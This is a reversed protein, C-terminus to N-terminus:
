LFAQRVRRSHCRHSLDTQLRYLVTLQGNFFLLQGQGGSGIGSFIVTCRQCIRTHADRAATKCLALAGLVVHGAALCQDARRLVGKSVAQPFSRLFFVVRDCDQRARQRDPRALAPVGDRDACLTRFLGIVALRESRFAQNRVLHRHVAIDVADLSQCCLCLGHGGSAVRDRHGSRRHDPIRLAIVHCILKGHRCFGALQHNM